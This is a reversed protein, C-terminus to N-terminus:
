YSAMYHINELHVASNQINNGTIVAGNPLIIIQGASAGTAVACYIVNEPRYGADITCIRTKQTVVGARIRGRFHVMGHIDKCYGPPNYPYNAHVAPAATEFVWGNELVMARWEIETTAEIRACTVTGACIIDGMVHVEAEPVETGVGVRGGVHLMGDVRAESAVHLPSRPEVTGVGIHGTAHDIFMRSVGSATGISLGRQGTTPDSAVTRPKLSLIWAPDPDAFSEYLNLVRKRSSDDGSAELSLPSGPQKVVGDEKQNLMGDILDSFNDETPMAHEVFYSKLVSRDRKNIEM